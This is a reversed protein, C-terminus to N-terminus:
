RREGSWDRPVRVQVITGGGPKSDVSLEAQILRAREGMSALGLGVSRAAGKDFGVGADEITLVLERDGAALAVLAERTRAHKAVNRLAEQTIRYLALSTDLDVEHELDTSSFRVDIGVQQSFTACEARIADVLGLDELLSPHLRRSLANVDRSLQALASRIERALAPAADSRLVAPRELRGAQMAIGALRQTLDDHMERALRRREDEQATLLRGALLRLERQNQRLAAESKRLKAEAERRDTIDTASGLMQTARGGEDRLPRKVTQLWRVRGTSDTIREEPIFREELTDMVELDVSRFHEAEKRDRAFDADRKGILEEVTTGYADAVAQNVLTFRGERDKAFIFNPDVDIVQRLFRRQRDLEATREAVRREMEDRARRLEEEMTKRDTIDECVVLVIIRDDRDRIARALERVWLVHGLRHVKRLEWGFVRGPDAVCVALQRQVAAKDDPHFVQLVSQGVLDRVEYGLQQAGFPNVSLVQGGPDVTFYMSPNEEFLIRHRQESERLSAEMRAHRGALEELEAMRSRTPEGSRAEEDPQGATEKM